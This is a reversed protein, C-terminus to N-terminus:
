KWTGKQNVLKDPANVWPCWEVHGDFHQVMLGKKHVPAGFSTLSAGVSVSAWHCKGDVLWPIASPALPYLPAPQTSGFAPGPVNSNQVGNAAYNVDYWGCWNEPWRDKNAPCKLLKWGSPNAAGAKWPGVAFSGAAPNGNPFLAQFWWTGGAVMDPAWANYDQRYMDALLFLQKLNGSCQIGKATDKASKLVPLLISMLISIIVIVLLMEILTFISQRPKVNM